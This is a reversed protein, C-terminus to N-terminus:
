DLGTECQSLDRLDEIPTQRRDAVPNVPVPQWPTPLHAATLDFRRNLGAVASDHPPATRVPHSLECQDPRRIARTALPTPRLRNGTPAPFHLLGKYVLSPALAHKTSVVPGHVRKLKVM